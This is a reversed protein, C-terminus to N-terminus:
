VPAISLTKSRAGSAEVATERWNLEARGRRLPRVCHLTYTFPASSAGHFSPSLRLQCGSEADVVNTCLVTYRLVVSLTAESAVCRM